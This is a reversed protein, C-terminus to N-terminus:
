FVGCWHWFLLTMVVCIVLTVEDAGVLTGQGRM